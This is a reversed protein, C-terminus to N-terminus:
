WLGPILRYPTQECFARYGDLENQLTADELATRVFFLIIIFSAVGLAAWSGLILPWGFIMLIMGVYMPHRVYRYPGTSIVRHGRDTQIRVTTELHPNTLLSWMIPISGLIHLGVGVFILLESMDSWEHRVSDVGSIVLMILISLLYFIGFVKDFRKTDKRRKWREELLEPAKAILVILNVVINLMFLGFFLWGRLWVITGAGAFLPVFLFLGAGLLRAVGRFWLSGNNGTRSQATQIRNNM